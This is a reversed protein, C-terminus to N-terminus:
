VNQQNSENNAKARDEDRLLDRVVLAKEYTESPWFPGEKIEPKRERQINLIGSERITQLTCVLCPRDLLIVYATHDHERLWRGFGLADDREVFDRLVEITKNDFPLRYSLEIGREGNNGQYYTTVTTIKTGM